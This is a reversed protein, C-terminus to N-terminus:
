NPNYINVLGLKNILNFFVTRPLAKTLIDATQQNTSVYSLKVVEDELKEKIFHRDILMNPEIM